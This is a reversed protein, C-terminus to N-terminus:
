INDCAPVAVVEVDDGSENKKEHSAGSQEPSAATEQSAGCVNSVWNGM